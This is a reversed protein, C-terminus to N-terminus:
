SSTVVGYASISYNKSEAVVSRPINAREFLCFVAGQGEFDDDCACGLRGNSGLIETRYELSASAGLFAATSTTPQYLVPKCEPRHTMFCLKAHEIIYRLWWLTTPKHAQELVMTVSLLVENKAEETLEFNPGCIRSARM